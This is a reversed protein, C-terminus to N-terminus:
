KRGSWEDALVKEEVVDEEVDEEEVEDGEVRTATLDSSDFQEETM